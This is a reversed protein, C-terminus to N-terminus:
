KTKSDSKATPKIAGEAAMIETIDDTIDFSKSSYLVGANKSGMMVADYGNEEAYEKVKEQVKDSWAKSFASSEDLFDDEMRQRRADLAKQKEAIKQAAAEGETQTISGNQAKQELNMYENRLADYDRKLSNENNSEKAEMEKKKNSFFENKSELSDTNVFAIRTGNVMIEKGTSDKTTVVVPKSKGKKMNMGFLIGVGILSLLSMVLSAFKMNMLKLAPLPLLFARAAM